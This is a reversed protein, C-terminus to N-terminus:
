QLLLGLTICKQLIVLVSIIDCNPSVQNNITVPMFIISLILLLRYESKQLTYTITYM